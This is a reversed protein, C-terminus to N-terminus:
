ADRRAGGNKKSRSALKNLIRFYMKLFIYSSLLGAVFILLREVFTDYPYFILGTLIIGFGWGLFAVIITIAGFVNM